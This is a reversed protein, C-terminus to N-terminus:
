GIGEQGMDTEDFKGKTTNIAPDTFNTEVGQVDNM